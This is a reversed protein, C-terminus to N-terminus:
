LKSLSLFLGMKREGLRTRVRLLDVVKLAQRNPFGAPKGERAFFFYIKKREKMKRNWLVPPKQEDDDDDDVVVESSLPRVDDDEAGNQGSDAAPNQKSMSKSKPNKTQNQNIIKLYILNENAKTLM